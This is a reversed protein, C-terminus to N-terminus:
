IHFMLAEQGTRIQPLSIAAFQQRTRAAISEWVHHVAEGCQGEPATSNTLLAPEIAEVIELLTIHEPDRKLRYGGAKGRRSELLGSRRLDNLIQVLFSPSVDECQALEDLRTVTDGRHRTALQAMSRCAYELKQSIRM